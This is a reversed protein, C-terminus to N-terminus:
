RQHAYRSGAFPGRAHRNRANEIDDLTDAQGELLLQRISREPEAQGPFASRIQAGLRNAALLCDINTDLGFFRSGCIAKLRADKELSQRAEVHNALEVLMGVLRDDAPLEAGKFRATWTKRIIRFEGSFKGFFGATRLVVAHRRIEVVTLDDDMVFLARTAADRERLEKLRNKAEALVSHVQEDLVAASRALLTNRDISSLLDIAQLVKKLTRPTIPTSPVGFRELIARSFAVFGKLDASSRRLQKAKAAIDALTTDALNAQRAQTVVANLQAPHVCQGHPTTVLKACLGRQHHWQEIAEMLRLLKPGLEPTGLLSKLLRDDVSSGPVPIRAARESLNSLGELTVPLVLEGFAARTQDICTRLDTLKQAAESASIWLVPPM